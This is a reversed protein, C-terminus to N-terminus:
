PLPGRSSSAGQGPSHRGPRRGPRWYFLYWGGVVFLIVVLALAIWVNTNVPWVKFAMVGVITKTAIPGFYRSDESDTRNDGMVFYEGAPIRYPQTLSWPQEVPSPDSPPNPTPLWPEALPTGNIYVEGGSVSIVEGPLGIVRKVLDAYPARENPPRTFVVINGRQIGHLDQSIRDVVIRNGIMLTPEMSASPISFIQAVFARIGVAVLLAVGLVALWEFLWKLASRSRSPRRPSERRLTSPDSTTPTRPTEGGPNGAAVDPGEPARFDDM